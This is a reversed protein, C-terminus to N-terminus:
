KLTSGKTQASNQLITYVKPLAAPQTGAPLFPLGMDLSHVPEPQTMAGDSHFFDSANLKSGLLQNTNELIPPMNLEWKINTEEAPFNSIQWCCNHATISLQIGHTPAWTHHRDRSSHCSYEPAWQALVLIALSLPHGVDVLGTMRGVRNTLEEEM